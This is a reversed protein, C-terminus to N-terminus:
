ESARTAQLIAKVQARAMEEPAGLRIYDRVMREVIDDESVKSPKYVLTAAQYANARANAKLKDNVIGVLTMEKKELVSRAEDETECVSYEFTKEIEKGAEPHPQGDPTVADKPVTFTFKAGKTIV